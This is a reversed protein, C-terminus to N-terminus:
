GYETYSLFKSFLETKPTKLISGPGQEEIKGNNLFVVKHAHSAFGLLHTSILIGVKNLALQKIYSLIKGVLQIDVSSTIEDLLLYNPKLLLARLFAVRQKQGVSLQYPYQKLLIDLEFLLILDNYQSQNLPQKLQKLPMLLNKEVTLHPWLHFQQFVITVYPYISASSKKCYPFIKKNELIVTGMDPEELLSLNRLLTSKGSGSPGVLAVIEGPSVSINIDSLIQKGSIAKSINKGELM